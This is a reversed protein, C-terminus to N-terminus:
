TITSTIDMSRRWAPPECVISAGAAFAPNAAPTPNMYTVAISTFTQAVAVSQRNEVAPDFAGEDCSVTAAHQRCQNCRSVHDGIVPTVDFVRQDSSWARPSVTLAASMVLPILCMD